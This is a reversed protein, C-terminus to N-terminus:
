KEPANITEKVLLTYYDKVTYDREIVRKSQGHKEALTEIM